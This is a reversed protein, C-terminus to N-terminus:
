KGLVEEIDAKMARDSGRQFGKYIKRVTRKEDILFTVPSFTVGYRPAIQDGEDWVVCCLVHLDTERVYDEIYLNRLDIFVVYARLDPYQVLLKQLFKVERHCARCATQIFILLTPYGEFSEYFPMPDKTVYHFGEFDPAISGTEVAVQAAQSAWAGGPAVSFMVSSWIVLAALVFGKGARVM